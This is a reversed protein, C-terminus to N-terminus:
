GAAVEKLMGRLCDRWPRGRLGLARWTSDKDLVSYAPRPATTPYNATAVPVIEGAGDILGLTRAEDRIAVGFEYWTCRGDDTWHGIGTLAPMAAGRWLAVALERAWTPTGVQDDVITIRPRTRLLELVTSVFNRGHASYLWATRVVWALGPAAALVRREGEAKSCAYVGRPAVPDDPAHARREAGGFVYDTSLHVLRAGCAAAARAVHEAGDANVRWAAEPEAEARDVATWAAANVIVDPRFEAVAAAVAGGDGIDLERHALARLTWGGPAAAQLEQGLQGGAGTILAKM